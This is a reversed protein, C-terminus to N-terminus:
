IYLLAELSNRHLLNFGGGYDDHWKTSTRSRDLCEIDYGAYVVLIM